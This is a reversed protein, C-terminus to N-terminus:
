RRQTINGPQTAVAGATGLVGAAVAANVPVAVNVTNNNIDVADLVLLNLLAGASVNDLQADSMKVAKLPSKNAPEKGQDAFAPAAALGLSLTCLALVSKM